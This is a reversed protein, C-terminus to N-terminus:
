QLYRCNINKLFLRHMTPRLDVGTLPIKLEKKTKTRTLSINLVSTVLHISHIMLNSFNLYQENHYQFKLSNQIEKFINVCIPYQKLIVTEIITDM